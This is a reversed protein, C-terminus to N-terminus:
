GVWASALALRVCYWEVNHFKVKNSPTPSRPWVFVVHATCERITSILSRLCRDRIEPWVVQQGQRLFSKNRTRSHFLTSTRPWVLAVKNNVCSFLFFHQVINCWINSPFWVKNLMMCCWAVHMLTALRPLLACTATARRVKRESKAQRYM